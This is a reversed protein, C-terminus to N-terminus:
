EPNFKAALTNRLDQNSAIVKELIAVAQEKALPRVVGEIHNIILQATTSINLGQPRIWANAQHRTRPAACAFCESASDYTLDKHYTLKGCRRCPRARGRWYAIYLKLTTFWTM